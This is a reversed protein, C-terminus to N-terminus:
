TEDPGSPRRHLTQRARIEFYRRDEESAHELEEGRSFPSLRRSDSRIAQNSLGSERSASPGEAASMKAQPNLLTRLSSTSAPISPLDLDPRRIMESLPPLTIRGAGSSSTPRSKVDPSQIRPLYADPPAHTYHHRPNHPQPYSQYSEYAEPAQFHSAAPTGFPRPPPMYDASSSSPRISSLATHDTPPHPYRHRMPSQPQTSALSPMAPATTPRLSASHVAIPSFAVQGAPRTDPAPGATRPPYYHQERFRARADISSPYPQNGPTASYSSSVPRPQFADIEPVSQMERENMGPQFQYRFSGYTDRKYPAEPSTQLAQRKNGDELYSLQDHGTRPRKALANTGNSSGPRSYDSNGTRPPGDIPKGGTRAPGGKIRLKLGQTAFSKSLETSDQVGPFRKPSYVQFPETYVTKCHHVTADVMEYLSLKLRFTGEVRVGIDPFVFFGEASGDRPDKLHYLSSVVNGTVYRTKGDALLYLEEDEEAKCLAAFCFLYPSQILSASTLGSPAQSGNTKKMELSNNGVSSSSDDSTATTPPKLHDQYQSATSPTSRSIQLRVVPPPDVPGKPLKDNGTCLRALKPQQRVVLEYEFSSLEEVTGPRPVMPVIKPVRSAHNPVPSSREGALTTTDAHIVGPNNSAMVSKASRVSAESGSTRPRTSASGNRRRGPASPGAQQPHAANTRGDGTIVSDNEPKNYYLHGAPEEVGGNSSGHSSTSPRRDDKLSPFSPLKKVQPSTAIDGM